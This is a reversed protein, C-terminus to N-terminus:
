FRSEARRLSSMLQDARSSLPKQVHEFVYPFQNQSGDYLNRNSILRGIDFLLSAVEDGFVNGFRVTNDQCDRRGVDINHVRLRQLKGAMDIRQAPPRNSNEGLNIEHVM